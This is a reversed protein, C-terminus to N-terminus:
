NNNGCTVFCRVNYFAVLETLVTVTEVIVDACTMGEVDITGVTEGVTDEFCGRPAPAIPPTTTPARTPTAATTVM